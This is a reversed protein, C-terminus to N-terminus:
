KISSYSCQKSKVYKKIVPKLEEFSKVLEDNKDGFYREIATYCMITDILISTVIKFNFCIVTKIMVFSEDYNWQFNCPITNITENFFLDLALDQLEVDLCFFVEHNIEDLSM